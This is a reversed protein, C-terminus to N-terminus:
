KEEVYLVGMARRRKYTVIGNIGNGNFILRDDLTGEILFAENGLYKLDHEQDKINLKLRGDDLRVSIKDGTKSTYNGIHKSLSTTDKFSRNLYSNESLISAVLPVIDDYENDREFNSALFVYADKEPIWIGYSSFGFVGGGHEISKLNNVQCTRFGYGYDTKSGDVLSKPTMALKVYRKKLIKGNILGENWKAMDEVTSVIGGAAFFISPHVVPANVFRGDRNYYGQAWNSNNSQDPYLSSNMQLPEFINEKLFEAYSLGSVKEVIGGLIIYGSNSYKYKTGPEFELKRKSIFKIITDPPVNQSMLSRVETIKSLDVIGSTHTLLQHVTVPFDKSFYEPYFQSIKSDLNLKGRQHLLLVSVSTFQKTVSGIHFPTSFNNPISDELNALGYGKKFLTKGNVTAIISAGPTNSSYNSQMISDIEDISQSEITQANTFHLNFVIVSLIITKKM